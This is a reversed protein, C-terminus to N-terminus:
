LRRQGDPSMRENETSTPTVTSKSHIHNSHHTCDSGDQKDHTNTREVARCGAPLWSAVTLDRWREVPLHCSEFASPGRSAPRPGRVQLGSGGCRCGTLNRHRVFSSALTKRARSTPHPELANPRTTTPRHAQSPLRPQPPAPKLNGAAGTSACLRPPSPGSLKPRLPAPLGSGEGPSLLRVDEGVGCMVRRPARRARRTGCWGAPRGVRLWRCTCAAATGRGSAESRAWRACGRPLDTRTRASAHPPRRRPVAAHSKQAEQPGSPRAIPSSSSSLELACAKPQGHAARPRPRLCSCGLGGNARGAGQM